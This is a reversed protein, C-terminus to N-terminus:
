NYGPNQTMNPNTGVESSPIPFINLHPDSAQGRFANGKWAWLYDSSVFKNFRILDSRRVCEWYLERGREDLIYQFNNAQLQALTVTHNNDGFARARIINVDAVAQNVDAGSRLNAEARMLYADALRFIPFDISCFADSYDAAQTGDHNLNTYKRVGIGDTFTGVTYIDWNTLLQLYVRTDKVRTFMVDTPDYPIALTDVLVNVFDKTTRNGAWGGGTALGLDATSMNGGTGAHLIFTTGGYSQTYLGDCNIAFIMERSTNNDASFNLRYNPELTYGANIVKTCYTICDAWHATGTYVEANLYLRALLMWDAAQDAHGYSWRPAGLTGEIAKLESEIYNFLAKRTTQKPYFNGPKDAETIFGPNGFMDIAHYYALARLFRAEAVYMKSTDDSSGENVRIFENCVSVSYIIRAYMATIFVDNSTWNQWHFNKITQDNWACLAEDTPLEQLNWLCRTYVGFGLDIGAIDGGTSVGDQGPVSFSAYLKALTALTTGPINPLNATVVLHPDIPKVDLDKVCSTMMQSGIIVSFIIKYYFKM